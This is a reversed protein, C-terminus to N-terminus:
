GLELGPDRGNDPPPPAVEVGKAAPQQDGAPEQTAKASKRSRRPREEELQPPEEPSFYRALPARQEPEPFMTDLLGMCWAVVHQACLAKPLEGDFTSILHTAVEIQDVDCIVPQPSM